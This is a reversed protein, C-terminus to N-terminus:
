LGPRKKAPRSPTHMDLAYEAEEEEEMYDEYQWEEEDEDGEHWAAGEEHDGISLPKSCQRYCGTLNLSM